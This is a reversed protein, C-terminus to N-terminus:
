ASYTGDWLTTDWGFQDSPVAQETLVLEIFKAVQRENYQAHARKWGAEAITRRAADDKAYRDIAAILEDESDWYVAEQDPTFLTEVEDGTRNFILLGNGVYHVIRDSSYYRREEDRSERYAMRTNSMNLGMRARRIAHMYAEGELMNGQDRSHFDFRLQPMRQKILAPITVRLDDNNAGGIAFFLDAPLDIAPLEFNRGTEISADVPNPIFTGLAGQGTLRPLIQGGTTLFLADCYPANRQIREVNDDHFVADVNVEGVRLAPFRSRIEALTELPVLNAHHLLMIHPQYVSLTELLRKAAHKAGMKGSKIVGLEKAMFRISFPLVDHGNRIFGNTLRRSIQYYNGGRSKESFDGVYLIRM